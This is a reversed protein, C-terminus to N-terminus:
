AKPQADTFESCNPLPKNPEYTSSSKDWVYTVTYSCTQDAQPKLQDPTLAPLASSDKFRSVGAPFRTAQTTVRLDPYDKNGVAKVEAQYTYQDTCQDSRKNKEVRSACASVKAQTAVPLEFVSNSGEIPGDLRVEYLYLDSRALSGNGTAIPTTETGIVGVFARDEATRILHPWVKFASFDNPVDPADWLWREKRFTRSTVFPGQKDIGVCWDTQENCYLKNGPNLKLPEVDAASAAAPLLAALLLACVKNM